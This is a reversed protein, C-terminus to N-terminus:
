TGVSDAGRMPPSRISSRARSRSRIVGARPTLPETVVFPAPAGSDRLMAGIMPEDRVRAMIARFELEVLEPDACIIDAFEESVRDIGGTM